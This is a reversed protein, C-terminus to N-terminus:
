LGGATVRESERLRALRAADARLETATAASVLVVSGDRSWITLLDLLVGALPGDGAVLVRAGHGADTRGADDLLASFPVPEPGPSVLAEQEAEADPAWGIVDGYTMVAGAADITGSPLDGDFRRTLAPLAVAVLEARAGAWAEPRSTVVVDPSGEGPAAGVVVTAGCRWAALTWVATRWHAPLDVVVTTGPAADLEEVLLNVTKSVWNLLVAGSLEVREGDDGYWTLRPRGPDAVVLSLTAPLDRAPIVPNM